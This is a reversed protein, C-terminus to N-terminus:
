VLFTFGRSLLRSVPQAFLMTLNLGVLSPLAMFIIIIPHRLVSWLFPHVDRVLFPCVSVSIFTLLYLARRSESSVLTAIVM